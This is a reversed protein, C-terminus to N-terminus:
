DKTNQPQETETAAPTELKFEKYQTEIARRVTASYTEQYHKNLEEIMTQIRKTLAITLTRHTLM